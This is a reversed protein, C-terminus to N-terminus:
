TGAWLYPGLRGQEPEPPGTCVKVLRTVGLPTVGVTYGHLPGRGLRVDGCMCQYTCIRRCVSGGGIGTPVYVCVRRHTRRCVCVDGYDRLCTCVCVDIYTSM